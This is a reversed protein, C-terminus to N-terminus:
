WRHAVDVVLRSGTGPGDLIFVRFPLRARVGLGITTRGEFSGALAIQRFTSYGAVNRLERPNRPSYTPRGASDYTPAAAVIELDAGGRLPVVAGSGPQRVASVYSVTYGRVDGRVDLVLRDFCAHAGSRVNTLPAQTRMPVAKTLSGWTVGCSPGSMVVPAAAAPLALLATGLLLALLTHLVRRM